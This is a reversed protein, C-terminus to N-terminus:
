ACGSAPDSPDPREVSCEVYGVQKFLSLLNGNTGVSAHVTAMARQTVDAVRGTAIIRREILPPDGSLAVNVGTSVQYRVTATSWREDASAPGDVAEEVTTEQCWSTGTIPASIALAGLNVDLTVCSTELLTGVAVPLLGEVPSATIAKNMRYIASDIGADAAALARVTGRDRTARDTNHTAFRISAAVFLGVIALISLALPLAFGAEGKLARRASLM